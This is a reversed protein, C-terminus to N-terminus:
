DGAAQLWFARPSVVPMGQVQGLGLLAKDGTVFVEAGAALACAVIWEDDPDGIALALAATAAPALPFRRLVRLVQARAAAPMHLKDALIRSLETIVPEGVIM